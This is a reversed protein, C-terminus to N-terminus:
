IKDYINKINLLAREIHLSTLKDALLSDHAEIAHYIERHEKVSEYLRQESNLSLKRYAKIKHHLETLVKSLLRNGSAKYIISHFATDLEKLNETDKRSIYFESLEVSECLKKLEEPSIREAAHASALGELRMRINYIDILDDINIGIVVAGKNPTTHVLGDESLRKLAARVPTRSVGLRETLTKETLATGRTLVGSLIEEELRYYVMEELSLSKLEDIIM